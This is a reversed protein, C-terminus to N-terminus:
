WEKPANYPYEHWILAGNDGTLSYQLTAAEGPKMVLKENWVAYIEKPIDYSDGIFEYIVIEELFDFNQNNETKIIRIKFTVPKNGETFISQNVVLSVSYTLTDVSDNPLLFCQDSKIKPGGDSDDKFFDNDLQSSAYIIGENNDGLEVISLAQAWPKLM